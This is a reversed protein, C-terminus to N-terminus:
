PLTGSTKTWMKLEVKVKVADDMQGSWSSKTVGWSGSVDGSWPATLTATDGPQPLVLTASGSNIFLANLQATKIRKSFGVYYTNNSSDVIEKMDSGQDLDFSLVSGSICSTSSGALTFVVGTGFGNNAM